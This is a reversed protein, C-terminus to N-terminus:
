LAQCASPCFPTPPLQHTQSASMAYTNQDASRPLPAPALFGLFLEHDLGTKAGPLRVEGSGSSDIGSSLGAGPVHSRGELGTVLDELSHNMNQIKFTLSQFGRKLELIM